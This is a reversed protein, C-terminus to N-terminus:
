LVVHPNKDFGFALIVSNPSRCALLIRTCFVEEDSTSPRGVQSAQAGLSSHKPARLPGRFKKNPRGIKLDPRRLKFAQSALPSGSIKRPACRQLQLSSVDKIEM